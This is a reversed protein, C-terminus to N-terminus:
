QMSGFFVGNKKFACHFLFYIQSSTTLRLDITLAGKLIDVDNSGGIYFERYLHWIDIKQKISSM